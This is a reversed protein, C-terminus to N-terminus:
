PVEQGSIGNFFFPDRARKPKGNFGTRKWKVFHNELGTQCAQSGCIFAPCKCPPRTCPNLLSEGFIVRAGGGRAGRRTVRLSVHPPLCGGGVGWQGRGCPRATRPARSTLTDRALPPSNRTHVSRPRTESRPATPNAIPVILPRHKVSQGGAGAQVPDGTVEPCRRQPAGTSGTPPETMLGGGGPPSKLQYCLPDPPSAKPM